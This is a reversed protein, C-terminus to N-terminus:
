ETSLMKDHLDYSWVQLLVKARVRLVDDVVDTDAIRKRISIINM